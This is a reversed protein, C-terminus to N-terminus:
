LQLNHYFFATNTPAATSHTRSVAVKAIDLQIIENRAELVTVLGSLTQMSDALAPCM